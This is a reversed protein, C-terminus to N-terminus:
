TMIKVGLVEVDVKFWKLDIQILFHEVTRKHGGCGCVCGDDAAAQRHPPLFGPERRGGPDEGLQGEELGLLKASYVHTASYAPNASYM